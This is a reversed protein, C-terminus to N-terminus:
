NEATNLAKEIYQFACNSDDCYILWHRQKENVFQGLQEYFTELVIKWERGVVILPCPPIAGIQLQSWMVALEGLTGIGGPFVVGANCCDILTFLRQRLTACRYEETLWPNPSAPRWAEVEDCTVSIVHGGWEAAGRSVAEMVGMYGGNYITYGAKGLLAGLQYAEQYAREGPKTEAGGFVSISKM